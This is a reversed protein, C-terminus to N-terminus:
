NHSMMRIVCHYWVSPMAHPYNSEVSESKKTVEETNVTMIVMSQERKQSFVDLATMLRMCFDFRMRLRIILVLCFGFSWLEVYNRWVPQSRGDGRGGSVTKQM